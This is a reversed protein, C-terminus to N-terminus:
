LALVLIPNLSFDNRYWFVAVPLNTLLALAVCASSGGMAKMSSFRGFYRPNLTSNIGTIQARGNVGGFAMTRSGRYINWATSKLGGPVANTSAETIAGTPALGTDQAFGSVAGAAANEANLASGVIGRRQPQDEMPLGTNPDVLM